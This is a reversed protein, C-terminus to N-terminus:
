GPSLFVLDIFKTWTIEDADTFVDWDYEATVLDVYLLPFDLRFGDGEVPLLVKLYIVYRRSFSTASHRVDRILIIIDRRLGVVVELLWEQPECSLEGAFGVKLTRSGRAM